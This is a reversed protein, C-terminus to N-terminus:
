RAAATRSLETQQVACCHARSPKTKTGDITLVLSSQWNHSKLFLTDSYLPRFGLEEPSLGQGTQM